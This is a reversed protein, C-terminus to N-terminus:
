FSLKIVRLCCSLSLNSDWKTCTILIAQPASTCVKQKVTSPLHIEWDSEISMGMICDTLLSWVAECSTHELIDVKIIRDM